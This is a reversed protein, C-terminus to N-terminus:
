RLTESLSLWVAASASLPDRHPAVRRLNRVISCLFDLIRVFSRRSSDVNAPLSSSRPYTITSMGRNKSHTLRWNREVYTMVIYRQSFMLLFQAAQHWNCIFHSVFDGGTFLLNRLQLRFLCNYLDFYPFCFFLKLWQCCQHIVKAYYISTIHM